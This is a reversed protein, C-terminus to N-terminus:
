SIIQFPVRELEVMYLFIFYFTCIYISYIYIYTYIYLFSVLKNNVRANEKKKKHLRLVKVLYLKLKSPCPLKKASSFVHLKTGYLFSIPRIELINKRTKLIFNDVTYADRSDPRVKWSGAAAEGWVKWKCNCHNKGVEGTLSSINKAQVLSKRFRANQRKELLKWSIINKNGESTIQMNWSAWRLMIVASHDKMRSRHPQLLFMWHFKNSYIM